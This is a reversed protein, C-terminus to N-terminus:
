KEKNLKETIAEGAVKRDDFDLIQQGIIQYNEHGKGAILVIDDHNAQFVAKRIATKRDMQVEYHNEEIGRLMDDVIATPNETRPNDATIIVHDSYSLATKTMLPRKTRDRDGGCGMVTIVKNKVFSRITRLVNELSDPTHAYDVIVGYDQGLNVPEFRGSVGTTKELARQIVPLKIGACYAAAAAALMNYVSFEGMLKSEIRRKEGDLHLDFSVGNADLKIESAYVEANNRIGYTLIPQATVRTLKKYYPDDVNLVAFRPKDEVYANGLQAFLMSKAQIYEEMDAHYDLHDQSLNTFIAIDYECGYVRGLDLAHSSVEMVATDIGKNVMDSFCKQLFLADPTTNKVDYSEEGIKMQITGILGTRRFDEKFISELLYTVSTKGNTGTVGVLQLKRTPYGYFKNALLALGRSTDKVKIVPITVDLDMESIIAAAGQLEAQKAYEHGDVTFGRICVFLDGKTVHRSDMKIGAIEIEEIPRTVSYFRLSKILNELRM